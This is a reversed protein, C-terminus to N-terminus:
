ISRPISSSAGWGVLHPRLRDAVAEARALSVEPRGGLKHRRPRAHRGTVSSSPQATQSIVDLRLRSRVFV